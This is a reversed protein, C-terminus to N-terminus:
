RGAIRRLAREIEGRLVPDTNVDLARIFAARAEEVRGLYVYVQGLHYYATVLSPDLEVARLLRGEAEPYHGSLFQAWGQLDQAVGSEPALRLLNLAAELGQRAMSRDLYFRAVGEWVAPDEPALRTAEELWVEAVSYQGLGAYVQALYLSLAPNDPDLDYAAELHPRAAAPDGTRLHYLGLLSRALASDPALRVAEELHELGEQSRGSQVLAQGLLAHAEAYAPRRALAWELALVALAPEGHALCTQGVQALRHAPDDGARGLVDMLESALPTSAAELHPGAAAPNSLALLAGLGEHALPDAPDMGLLARYHAMAKELRGLGVYGRAVLRRVALDTPDLALAREGHVIAGEWDGQAACLAARLSVVQAPSGGRREAAAVAAL